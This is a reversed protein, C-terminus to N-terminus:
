CTGDWDAFNQLVRLGIPQSKEPHFQMGVVNGRAVSAVFRGGYECWALVDAPDAPVCHYSHVFYFDVHPKVGQMLPHPKNCLLTNWGVHPVKAPQTPELAQVVGPVLGLGPTDGHEMGREFLLQMGLCIGLLPRGAAVHGQVAASWGGAVLYEMALRFSGVGPLVLREYGGVAAPDEFAEAEVGVRDFAHRVSALNGAGYDIIGIM